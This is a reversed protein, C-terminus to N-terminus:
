CPDPFLNRFVAEATITLDGWLNSGVIPSSRHTVTVHSGCHNIGDLSYQQDVTVDGASATIQEQQLYLVVFSKVAAPTAQQSSYRAGERAANQVIQHERLVLGFQITGLFLITLVPIVLAMEVLAAGSQRRSSRLVQRM